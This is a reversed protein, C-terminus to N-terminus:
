KRRGKNPAKKGNSGTNSSRSVAMTQRDRALKSLRLQEQEILQQLEQEESERQIRLAAIQSELLMRKRDLSSQHREITQRTLLADLADRSEQAVRASGTLLGAEGLYVDSLQVGHNTLRFERIQNSHAIGRAKLIYLGRNREGNSELDRVLLWADVLSSIEVENPEAADGPRTLTTMLATIQKERLFDVLRLLMHRTEVRTGSQLMATIPDVVVISPKFDTVLKHLKVLHMELGFSTPRAAHFLLLGQKIWRGLDIGVSRMNRVVQDPSEEFSFFACREGRRCAAEVFHAALTTKATGASGSILISSARYYGKGGLMADLDPLGSSVQENSAGHKLELATVPLVSLGDNDILFPYENTGHSTGRYKMVRLHRTSVTESVRHDLLIVCDSIYEEIGHRTMGDAAREGTIIATLHREKLWRFLRRLEARLISENKFGTFLAEASDILVRKAGVSDVAHALRVFLAELDYEGTEEVESPEIRVYDIALKKRNILSNVDFGLSAVNSALEEATEEFSICVGPENFRAAGQVLFQMGLLTKGCGAAGFVLTPRGRPLGGLTIEDL